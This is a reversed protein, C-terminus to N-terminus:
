IDRLVRFGYLSIATTLGYTFLKSRVQERLEACASIKGAKNIKPQISALNLQDTSHPNSRNSLM